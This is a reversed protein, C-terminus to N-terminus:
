GIGKKKNGISIAISEEDISAELTKSCESKGNSLLATPALFTFFRKGLTEVDDTEEGEVDIDVVCLDFHCSHVRM